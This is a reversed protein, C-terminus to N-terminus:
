VLRGGYTKEFTEDEGWCVRYATKAYGQVTDVWWPAVPRAVDLVFMWCDVVHDVMLGWEKVVPPRAEGQLEGGEIVHGLSKLSEMAMKMSEEPRGLAQYRAALTVQWSSVGPRPAERPSRKYTAALKALAKEAKRVAGIGVATRQAGVLEKVDRWLAKRTELVSGPTDRAERCEGCKCVFGWNKRLLRLRELYATPETPPPDYWWTIETDAPLNRTARVIMM